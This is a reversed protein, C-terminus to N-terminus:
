APTPLADSGAAPSEGAPSDNLASSLHQRLHVALVLVNPPKLIDMHRGPVRELALTPVLARWGYAPVVSPDDRAQLFLVPLDSPQAAYRRIAAAYAQNRRGGATDSQVAERRYVRLAHLLHRWGQQRILRQRRDLGALLHRWSRGPLMTDLMVVARVVQGAQRLQYAVEYALVGGISFGGLYYPGEPQQQRIIALYEAALRPVDIEPAPTGEPAYLLDIETQSFIGYVRMGLDLSQALRRYMEAGALLFLGPESGYPQLALLPVDRHAAQGRRALAQALGAITPHEFLLGPPCPLKLSAEIQNALQVAMLSHGGLDFFSEHVGFEGSRLVDRWVNWITQETSDRPPVPQGPVQSQAIPESLARRNIKGNPLLPMAALEVFHSPVMYEPLWRRLHQRLSEREPMDDRPVLYAALLPNNPSEERLMVLARAVGPHSLLRAEIEGLEIRFGRLKVQDDLRGGHELSGDHRWRGRDGTRYIRRHEPVVAEPQAVFREASLEPRKFYGLAVGTGGIWIEGPVGIPCPQL